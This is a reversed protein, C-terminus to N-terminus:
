KVLKEIPAVLIESAGAKHLGEIVEWFVEERVAAHVAVWEPDALDVVTPDRLGPLIQRIEPLARRPANMMVYKYQRGSQVAKIRMILRDLDARKAPDAIAAHNAVLAAQSELVTVVPRLDNLLLTSGTATIEVIADALGLGPAVEVSGSLTIIEVDHVSHEAFYCRASRPYSTAVRSGALDRPARVPSEKPVALVLTCYGYGLTLLEAVEVGEEHVLNQGVIGADVTGAAVYEPIDDDRAYLLALPFNRCPSFLRQNYSEFELGIAHLLSLTSETLRGQRQV